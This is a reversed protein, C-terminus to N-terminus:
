QHSMSMECALAAHWMCSSSRRLGVLVLSTTCSRSENEVVTALWKAWGYWWVGRRMSARVSRADISAASAAAGAPRVTAITKTALHDFGHLAAAASIAAIAAIESEILDTLNSGKEIRDIRQRSQEAAM